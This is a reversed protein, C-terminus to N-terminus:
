DQRNLFLPFMINKFFHIAGKRSILDAFFNPPHFFMRYSIINEIMGLYKLSGKISTLLPMFALLLNLDQETVAVIQDIWKHHEALYRHAKKVAMTKNTESNFKKFLATDSIM